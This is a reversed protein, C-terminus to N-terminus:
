LLYELKLDESKPLESQPFNNIESKGNKTIVEKNPKMVSANLELRHTTHQGNNEGRWRGDM